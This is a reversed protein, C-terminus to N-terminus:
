TFYFLWGRWNGLFFVSVHDEYDLVLSTDHLHHDHTVAVRTGVVVLLWFYFIAFVCMGLVGGCDRYAANADVGCEPPKM